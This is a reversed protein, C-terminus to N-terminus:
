FFEVAWRVCQALHTMPPCRHGRKKVKEVVEELTLGVKRADMIVQLIGSDRLVRSAQFVMPAHAIFQAYEIAELATKKEKKFFDM